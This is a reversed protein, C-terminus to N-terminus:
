PQLIAKRHVRRALQSLTLPRERFQFAQFAGLQDIAHPGGADNGPPLVGWVRIGEPTLSVIQVDSGRNQFPTFAAPGTQTPAGVHNVPLFEMRPCPQAPLPLGGSALEKVTDLFVGTVVETPPRGDLWDFSSTQRLARSLLSSQTWTPDSSVMWAFPGLVKGFLRANLNTWFRDFLGAGPDDLLGDANRDTRRGNWRAMAVLAQQAAVPLAAADILRALEERFFWARLDTSAIARDLDRFFEPSLRERNRGLQDDLFASRQDAGWATQLDGDRFGAVPPCNWNVFWGNPPNFGALRVDPYPFQAPRRVPLRDDGFSQRSKGLGAYVYAINGARDAGLWNISLAMGDSAGVWETLTPAFNSAFWAAYSDIVRGKWGRTKVYRVKGEVAIVPGLDTEEIVREVPRSRGKVTFREVRRRLPLTLGDGLLTEPNAPDPVLALLDVLNAVGATATFALHRNAGFLLAFYGVPTTGVLDFEPCHLGVEFLASPKFYGMQPGGFLVAGKGGFPRMSLAVAYSGSKEPIGISKLLSNRKRSRLTPSELTGEPIAEPLFNPLHRLQAPLPSRGRLTTYVGPDHHFIVDEFAQSARRAGLNRVLHNLLHLNDLEQTFDNYRAAMTGAFIDLVDAESFPSPAIGLAAFGPDPPLRRAQVAAVAANLGATFASLAIRFRDAARGPGETLEAPDVRDRRALVDAELFAEGYIEALTGRVSRRLVEMQFLRARGVSYGFGWYVGATSSAVVHPVGAGDFLIQVSRTAFPGIGITSARAPAALLALTFPLLVLLRSLPPPHSM